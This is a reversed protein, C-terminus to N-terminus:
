RHVFRGGNGMSWFIPASLPQTVYIIETANAMSLLMHREIKSPVEKLRFEPV